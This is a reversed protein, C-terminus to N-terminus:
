AQTYELHLGFLSEGLLHRGRTTRSLSGVPAVGVRDLYRATREIDETALELLFMGDGRQQLFADVLGARGGHAGTVPSVLRISRLGQVAFEVGRLGCALEAATMERPSGLFAALTRSARDIDRVALEASMARTVIPELPTGDSPPPKGSVLEAREWREWHGPDHQAWLFSVGHIPTTQNLWEDGVRKHQPYVFELGAERLARVTADLDPAVAGLLTIGDGHAALEEALRPATSGRPHPAPSLIGFAALGGIMFHIGRTTGSPEYDELMVHGEMGFAKRYAQAAGIYDAVRLDTVYYRFPM